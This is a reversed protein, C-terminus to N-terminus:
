SLEEDALHDIWRQLATDDSDGIAAGMGTFCDFNDNLIDTQNPMNNNSLQQQPQQQQPLAQQNNMSPMTLTQNVIRPQQLLSAFMNTSQRQPSSINSMYSNSVNGMFGSPLQDTNNGNTTNANNSWNFNGSPMTSEQQERVCSLRRKDHSSSNSDDINGMMINSRLAHLRQLLPDNSGTGSSSAVTAGLSIMSSAKAPRRGHGLTSAFNSDNNVQQEVDAMHNPRLMNDVNNQVSANHQQLTESEEDKATNWQANLMPRRRKALFMSIDGLNPASASLSSRKAQRTQEQQLQIGFSYNVNSSIAGTNNPASSNLNNKRMDPRSLNTLNNTSIQMANDNHFSNRKSNTVSSQEQQTGMSANSQASYMNSVVRSVNTNMPQITAPKNWDFNGMVGSPKPQMTSANNMTTTSSNSMSVVDNGNTSSTQRYSNTARLLALGSQAATRSASKVNRLTSNTDKDNKNRQDFFSAASNRSRNSNNSRLLTSTSASSVLAPRHNQLSSISATNLAGQSSHGLLSSVNRLSTTSKSASMMPKTIDVTGAKMKTNAAVIDRL